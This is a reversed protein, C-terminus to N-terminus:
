LKSGKCIMGNLKGSVCVSTGSHFINKLFLHVASYTLYSSTMTRHSKGKPSFVLILNLFPPPPAQVLSIYPPSQCGFCSSYLSGHKWNVMDLILGQFYSVTETCLSHMIKALRHGFSVNDCHANSHTALPLHKHSLEGLPIFFLALSGHHWSCCKMQKAAM